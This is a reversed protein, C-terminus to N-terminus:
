NPPLECGPITMRVETGGGDADHIEVTGGHRTVVQRVIALGLGSGPMARAERSRHFREFVLQRDEEPIGPGQDAVTLEVVSESVPNMRVTVTGGTPSWKAANDCINLVAREIGANDGFSYWPALDVDFRVDHRRRRVRELAREVAESVAVPELEVEGSDERALEVLDGILTTLEEIQARVDELLEARAEPPLDPGDSSSAQTLLDVNTRL